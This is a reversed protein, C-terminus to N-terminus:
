VRVKLGALGGDVGLVQGTVWTQGPHLFWAIASAVDAPDGLRGLPHMAESARASLDNSTVGATLPTKVLGPAVANVRIGHRAYSAAASRALGILGAKAAAIAEHNALGLQAAASSALVISGGRSRLAPVAARIMLFASTLNNDITHQWEEDSTRHAPKLLLSGPLHAVGDLRDFKEIAADVMQQADEPRTADGPVAVAGLRAALKQLPEERRGALVLSAGASALHHALVSGIGGTAGVILYSQGLMDETDHTDQIM